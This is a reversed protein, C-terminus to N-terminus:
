DVSKPSMAEGAKQRPTFGHKMLVALLLLPGFTLIELLAVKVNHLSLINNRDGISLWPLPLAFKADSFPWYIHMGIAHNYLSDLLIHSFWAIAMGIMVSVGVPPRCRFRWALIAELTLVGLGTAFLSHSYFYRGHGWYPLPLDPASGLLAFAALLWAKQKPPTDRPIAAYGIALGTITHGIPTM